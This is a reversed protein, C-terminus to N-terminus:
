DIGGFTTCKKEFEREVIVKVLLDIKEFLTM